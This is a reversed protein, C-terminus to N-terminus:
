RLRLGRRFSESSQIVSDLEEESLMESLRMFARRRRAEDAERYLELLFPGWEREGKARELIRKVEEPVSITSYRRLELAM